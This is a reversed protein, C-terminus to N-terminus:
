RGFNYGGTKKLEERVLIDNIREELNKGYFIKRLFETLEKEDLEKATETSKTKGKPATSTIKPFILASGGSASPVSRVYEKIFDTLKKDSIESESALTNAESIIRDNETLPGTLEPADSGPRISTIGPFILANGGSASPVSRIDTLANRSNTQQILNGLQERLPRIQSLKEAATLNSQSISKIEESIGEIEDQIQKSGEPEYISQAVLRAIRPVASGAGFKTKFDAIELGTEESPKEDTRIFSGLIENAALVPTARSALTRAGAIAQPTYSLLTKLASGSLKVAPPIVKKAAAAALIASAPKEKAFEIAKQTAGEAREMVSKVPVIKGDKIEMTAAPGQAAAPAAAPTRVVGETPTTVSANILDDLVPPSIAPVQSVQAGQDVQAVGGGLREGIARQITASLNDLYPTGAQAQGGLTPVNVAIGGGAGGGGRTGGLVTGGTEGIASQMYRDSLARLQNLQTLYKNLTADEKIDRRFIGEKEGRARAAMRGEYAQLNTVTGDEYVMPRKLLSDIQDNLEKVIPLPDRAKGAAAALAQANKLRTDAETNIIEAQERGLKLGGAALGLLQQQMSMNEVQEDTLIGRRGAAIQRTLGVNKAEQVLPLMARDAQTQALTLATTEPTLAIVGKAREVDARPGFELIGSRLIQSARERDAEAQKAVTSEMLEVNKIAEQSRAAALRAVANAQAIRSERTAQEEEMAQKRMQYQQLSSGLKMADAIGSGIRSFDVGVLTPDVPTYRALNQFQFGQTQIAM